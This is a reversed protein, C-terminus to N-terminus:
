PKAEERRKVYRCTHINDMKFTLRFSRDSKSRARERIGYGNTSKHSFRSFNDRKVYKADDGSITLEDRTEASEVALTQQAVYNNAVHFVAHEMLERKAPIDHLQSANRGAMGSSRPCIEPMATTIFPDCVPSIWAKTAVGTYVLMPM